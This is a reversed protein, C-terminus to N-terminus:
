LGANDIADLIRSYLDALMPRGKLPRRSARESRSIDEDSLAVVSVVTFGQRYRQMIENRAVAPMDDPQPEAGQGNFEDSIANAVNAAAESGRIILLYGLGTGNLCVLYYDLQRVTNVGKYLPWSSTVPSNPTLLTSSAFEGSVPLDDVRSLGLSYLRNLDDALVFDPMDCGISIFSARATDISPTDPTFLIHKM